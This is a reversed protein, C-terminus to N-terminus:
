LAFARAAANCIQCLDQQALPFNVTGLRRRPTERTGSLDKLGANSLRYTIFNTRVALAALM